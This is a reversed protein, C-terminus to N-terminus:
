PRVQSSPPQHDPHHSLFALGCEMMALGLGLAVVGGQFGSMFFVSGEAEDNDFVFVFAFVSARVAVLGDKVMAFFSAILAPRLITVPM